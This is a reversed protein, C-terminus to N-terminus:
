SGRYTTYGNDSLLLPLHYHAEGDCDFTISVEPYLSSRMQQKLYARTGFTVRYLGPPADSALDRCRGDADTASKSITVWTGAVERVRDVGDAPGTSLELEAGGEHMELRVTIGSAPRGLVTDLVHTTIQSM